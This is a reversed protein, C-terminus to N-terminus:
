LSEKSQRRLKKTEFVDLNQKWENQTKKWLNKSFTKGINQNPKLSFLNAL